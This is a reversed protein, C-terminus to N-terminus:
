MWSWSHLYETDWWVDAVQHENLLTICCPFCVNHMHFHNGGWIGWMLCVVCSLNFWRGYRRYMIIVIDQSNMDDPLIIDVPGVSAKHPSLIEMLQQISSCTLKFKDTPLSYESFHHKGLQPNAFLSASIKKAMATLTALYVTYNASLALMWPLYSSQHSGVSLSSSELLLALPQSVTSIVPSAPLSSSLSALLLSNCSQAGSNKKRERKRGEKRRPMAILAMLRWHQSTGKVVYLHRNQSCPSAAPVEVSFRKNCYCGDEWTNHMDLWCIWELYHSHLSLMSVRFATKCTCDTCNLLNHEAHMYSPQSCIIRIWGFASDYKESLAKVHWTCAALPVCAGGFSPM